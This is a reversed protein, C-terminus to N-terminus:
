TRWRWRWPAVEVVVHAHWAIGEKRRPNGGWDFGISVPNTRTRFRFLLSLFGSRGGATSLESAFRPPGWQSFISGPRMLFSPPVHSAVHVFSPPHVTTRKTSTPPFLLPRHVGDPLRSIPLFPFGRSCHFRHLRMAFVLLHPNCPAFANSRLFSAFSSGGELRPSCPPFVLQRAISARLMCPHKEEFLHSLSHFPSRSSFSLAGHCSPHWSHWKRKTLLAIFTVHWAVCDNTRTCGSNNRQRPGEEPRVREHSSMVHLSIFSFHGVQLNGYTKHLNERVLRAM